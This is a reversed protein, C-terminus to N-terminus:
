NIKKEYSFIRLYITKLNNNMAVFTIGHWKIELELIVVRAVVLSDIINFM